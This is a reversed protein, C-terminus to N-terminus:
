KNNEELQKLFENYSSEIDTDYIKINYKERLDKMATFYLLEDNAIAEKTMTNLIEEKSDELSPKEEASVRYIIHYGYESLVAKTTFEGDKLDASADWFEEVENSYMFDEILGGNSYSAADSYEEALEIFKKEVKDKDTKELEKILEKAQKLAKEGDTDSDEIEILIHRVTLRESYNENYYKKIDEDDFSAKVQKEVALTLKYDKMVYDYFEEETTVGSIGVYSSLFTKFDVGLMEAYQKYYDILEQTYQKIEDTTEIEKEAIYLDIMSLLSDYGYSSKLEAYLDDATFEKGDISAIVEEGNELKPNNGCATVLLMLFCCAIITFKKKM